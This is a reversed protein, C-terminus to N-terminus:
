SFLFTYELFLNQNGLSVTAIWSIDGIPDNSAPGDKSQQNEIASEVNKKFAATVSPVGFFNFCQLMCVYCPTGYIKTLRTPMWKDIGNELLCALLYGSKGKFEPEGRPCSDNGSCWRIFEDGALAACCSTLFESFGSAHRKVLFQKAHWKWPSCIKIGGLSRPIM